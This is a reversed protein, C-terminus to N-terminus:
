WGYLNLYRIFYIGWFNIIVSLCTLFILIKKSWWSHKYEGLTIILLILGEMAYRYGFQTAGVYGHFLGPLIMVFGAILMIKTWIKSWSVFFLFFLFPSTLILSMGQISPKIFPFSSYVIPLKFLIFKLNGIFYSIHFIGKNYWPEELVGPIREYAVDWITAFRQYNYGFNLLIFIIIGLSFIMLIKAGNKKLKTLILSIFLLSALITPLRSWYAMGVFVGAFFWNKLKHSFELQSNKQKIKISLFALLLFNIAVIHSFYWASGETALFWHNTGLGFAVTLVLAIKQKYLNNTLIFFLFVNVIAFLISISTQSSNFINFFVFPLSVLAPMPPYVVYWKNEGYSPVLENLWPYSKELYLRGKIFSEALLVFYNYHTSPRIATVIYVISILSLVIIPLYNNKFFYKIKM